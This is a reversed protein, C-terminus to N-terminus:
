NDNSVGISLQTMLEELLNSIDSRQTLLHTSHQNSNLQASIWGNELSPISLEHDGTNGILSVMAAYYNFSVEDFRQNLLGISRNVEHQPIIFRWQANNSEFSCIRINAANFEQLVDSLASTSHHMYKTEVVVCAVKPICAIGKPASLEHIDPGIVTKMGTKEYSYLHRVEIPIGLAYVPAVTAPHIIPADIHSFEMAEAYGLYPIPTSHVGWRPNVPYIGLVDKWLVVRQADLLAALATATHDSGGRGLLAIDGDKGQGFWGTVVPTGHLASRQLLETSLKMDVTQAITTGNLCLGIDEAGVPHADIGHESLAFAVVLASLREGSALLRNYAGSDDRDTALIELADEIGKLVLQFTDHLPSNILNPAFRLHQSALDNVLRGAYRPEKAARMLRDTTGWLASVVIVCPNTSNLMVEAIRNIDSADRLCSGGFKHIEPPEDM